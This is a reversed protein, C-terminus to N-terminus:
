ARNGLYGSQNLQRMLQRTDTSLFIELSLLSEGRRAIRIGDMVIPIITAKKVSEIDERRYHLTGIFPARIEIFESHIKLNAFPLLFPLLWKVLVLGGTEQHIVQANM